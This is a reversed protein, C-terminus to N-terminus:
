RRGGSLWASLLYKSRQLSEPKMWLGFGVATFFSFMAYVLAPKLMDENHLFVSAILFALSTNQIGVEIGITARDEVSLRLHKGFFFGSWMGAANVVLSFPLIMWVEAWRIGSGGYEEGAFFKIIFLVALLVVTVWKLRREIAEAWARRWQHLLIGLTVPIITVIFIQQMTDTFSLRLDAETGMLLSLALNVWFPITVLALVSNTVTMTISLATSANILYTIFNSTMGGPCAALIVFGVKIAAPLDTLMMLGLVFLPLFVLQLMLGTFFSKPRTLTESFSTLELSMGVNLMIIFLIGTILGDLYGM